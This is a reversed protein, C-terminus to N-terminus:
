PVDFPPPGIGHISTTREPGAPTPETVAPASRGDDLELLIETGARPPTQGDPWHLHGRWWRPGEKIEGGVSCQNRGGFLDARVSHIVRSRIRVIAFTNVHIEDHSNPTTAHHDHIM